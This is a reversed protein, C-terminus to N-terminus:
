PQEGSILADYCISNNLTQHIRSIKVGGNNRGVSKNHLAVINGRYDIVAGGSSGPQSDAEYEITYQDVDKVTSKTRDTKKPRGRPHSILILSDNNERIYEECYGKLSIPYYEFLSYQKAWNLWQDLDENQTTSISPPYSAGPAPDLRIVTYDLISDDTCIFKACKFKQYEDQKLYGLWIETSLADEENRVVHNNTIM